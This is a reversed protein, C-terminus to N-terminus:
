VTIYKKLQDFTAEGIGNVNKIEDITKFYGNEERYNIINQAKSEGIGPLTTLEEISALNINILNSSVSSNNNENNENNENSTIISVKNETCETIIYNNSSCTQNEQLNNKKIENKTYVYIVLEDQVKKSLNITDEVADKTFGGALTIVDSIISGEKVEYVGPSNVAGKIDVHFILPEPEEEKAEEAVNAMLNTNEITEVKDEKRFISYCSLALCISFFIGFAIEKTYKKLYFIMNDMRKGGKQGM